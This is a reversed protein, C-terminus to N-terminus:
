AVKHTEAAAKELPEVRRTKLKRTSKEEFYFWRKGDANLVQELGHEDLLRGIEHEAKEIDKEARKRAREKKAHEEVAAILESPLDDEVGPLQPRSRKEAAGRSARKKKAAKKKAMEEAGNTTCM